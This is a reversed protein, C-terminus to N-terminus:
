LLPRPIIEPCGVSSDSGSARSTRPPRLDRMTELDLLLEGFLILALRSRKLELRTEGVVAGAGIGDRAPV